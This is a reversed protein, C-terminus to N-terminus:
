NKKLVCMVIICAKTTTTAIRRLNVYYAVYLVYYPQASKQVGASIVWWAILSLTALEQICQYAM